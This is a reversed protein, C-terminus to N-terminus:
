LNSLDSNRMAGNMFKTLTKEFYLSVTGENGDRQKAVIVEAQNPFESEPNYVIDRYLFMVVDAEAELDGSEKLDSLIPRKDKREDVGRSLQHTALIPVGLERKGTMDKLKSAIHSVELRRDGIKKGPSMKYIGDVIILDLDGHKRAIRNAKVEVQRPSLAKSDDIFIPLKGGEGVSEVFREWLKVDLDGHTITRAPIGSIMSYLRAMIEEVEMEMSLFLVKKQMRALHLAIALFLATKGMRPRGGLIYFKRQLGDLLEDLETFGTPIGKLGQVPNNVQQEIQNYFAISADRMTVTENPLAHETVRFLREEAKSVIQDVPMTDNLALGRIEDSAMLLNRRISAREVLRAYTEAHTSSPTNRFLGIIYVEGGVAELHKFARLEDVVTLYDIAKKQELLRLMAQWIYNHRILFFDDPRLIAAIDPMMAPNVLISGIVAEEADQSFPVNLTPPIPYQASM